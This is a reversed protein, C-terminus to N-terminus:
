GYYNFASLDVTTLQYGGGTVTMAANIATINPYTRNIFGATGSSAGDGGFSWVGLLVLEGNVKLLVPHGSDGFVSNGGGSALWYIEDTGGWEGLYIKGYQGVCVCPSRKIALSPLYGTLNAPLFKAFAPWDGDYRGVLLDTAFLDEDNMPGVYAQSVLNRTVGGITLTAPCYSLHEASLVHRPSIATFGGFTLSTPPFGAVTTGALHSALSGSAWSAWQTVTQGSSRQMQVSVTKVFRSAIATVVCEGNSVRTLRGGSIVGTPSCSLEIPTNARAAIDWATDIVASTLTQMLADNVLQSSSATSSVVDDRQTLELTFGTDNIVPPRARRAGPVLKMQEETFIVPPKVRRSGPVLRM